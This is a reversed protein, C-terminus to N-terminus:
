NSTSSAMGAVQELARIAFLMVMADALERRTLPRGATVDFVPEAFRPPEGTIARGSYVRLGANSGGSWELLQADPYHDEVDGDETERPVITGPLLTARWFAARGRWTGEFRHDFGTRLELEGVQEGTAANFIVVRPAMADWGSTRDPRDSSASVQFIYDTATISDQFLDERRFDGGGGDANRFAPQWHFGGVMGGQGGRLAWKGSEPETERLSYGVASPPRMAADFPQPFEHLVPTASCGALLVVAILALARYGCRVPMTLM